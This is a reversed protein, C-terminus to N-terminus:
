RAPHCIIFASFGEERRERRSKEEVEVEEKESLPPCPSPGRLRLKRNTQSGRVRRGEGGRGEVPRALDLSLCVSLYELDLTQDDDHLLGPIIARPVFLVRCWKDHHETLTRIESLTLVRCAAADRHIPVSMFPPPPIFTKTQPASTGPHRRRDRPMSGTPWVLSRYNVPHGALSEDLDPGSLTALDNSELVPRRM